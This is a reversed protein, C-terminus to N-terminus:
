VPRIRPASTGACTRAATSAQRGTGGFDTYFLGPTMRSIEEMDQLNYTELQAASMSTISIPVDLLSEDRKRATVVVEEIAGEAHVTPAAFAGFAISVAAALSARRLSIPVM